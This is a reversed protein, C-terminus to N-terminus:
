APPRSLTSRQATRVLSPEPKLGRSREWRSPCEHHREKVPRQRFRSRPQSSGPEQPTLTKSPPSFPGSSPMATPTPPTSGIANWQLGAAVRRRAHPVHAGTFTTGCVVLRRRTVPSVYQVKLWARNVWNSHTEAPVLGSEIRFDIKGDQYFGPENSVYHGAEVEALYMTMRAASVGGASTAGGGIGNPGEHVNLYSRIGHGAGHLYNLGDKWLPQRALADLM